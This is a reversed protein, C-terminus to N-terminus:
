RSDETPLSAFFCTIFSLSFVQFIKRNSSVKLSNLNFLEKRKRRM